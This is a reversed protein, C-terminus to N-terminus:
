AALAEEAEPAVESSRVLVFAALVAAVGVGGLVWFSLAFGSTMAQPLSHGSALLTREHTFAVTAAIAVGLAGGIQQSTNLLGSALGSEHYEVGALAAISVPIFSLALGFGMMLYGPLLDSAYAGNVPIQAYWFM